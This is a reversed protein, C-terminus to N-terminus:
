ADIRGSIKQVGLDIAAEVLIRLVPNCGKFIIQDLITEGHQEVLGAILANMFSSNASRVGTFDLTIQPYIATYPEIRTRRFDAAAGGDALHAGFEQALHLEM